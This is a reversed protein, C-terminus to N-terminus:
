SARWALPHGVLARDVTILKFGEVQCQTLLMRDFPDRTQPEPDALALAHSARIGVLMFRSTTLFAPFADLPLKLPLKGLRVKIAIEWLSAVSAYLDSEFDNMVDMLEQPVPKQEALAILIHTDALLRM